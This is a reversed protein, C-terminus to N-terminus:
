NGCCALTSDELTHGQASSSRESDPIEQLVKDNNSLWKRLWFGRKALLKSLNKYTAIAEEMSPLSVLCNNVYFNNHLIESISPPYLHGFANATERLCFNACCPSLKAGFIHVTMQHRVPENELNGGPWWLFRLAERHDEDVYVQQFMQEVDRVLAVPEKRFKTLVCNLSNM